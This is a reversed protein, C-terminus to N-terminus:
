KIESKNLFLKLEHSILEVLSSYSVEKTMLDNIKKEIRYKTIKTKFNFISKETMEKWTETIVHCGIELYRYTEFSEYFSVLCTEPNRKVNQHFIKIWIWLSLEFNLNSNWDERSLFVVVNKFYSGMVNTRDM